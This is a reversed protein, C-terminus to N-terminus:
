STFPVDHPIEPGFLKELTKLLKENIGAFEVILNGRVFLHVPVFIDILPNTIFDLRENAIAVVTSDTALEVYIRDEGYQFVRMQERVSGPYKAKEIATIDVVGGLHRGLANKVGDLSALDDPRALWVAGAVILAVLIVAALGVITKQRKMIM